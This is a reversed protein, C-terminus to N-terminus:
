DALNSMLGKGSPIELAYNWIPTKPSFINSKLSRQMSLCARAFFYYFSFFVRTCICFNEGSGFTERQSKNQWPLFYNPSSSVTFIKVVSDLALEIAHYASTQRHEPVKIEEEVNFPVFKGNLGISDLVPDSTCTSCRSISNISCYLLPATSPSLPPPHSLIRAARLSCIRRLARFSSM